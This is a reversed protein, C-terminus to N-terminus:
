AFPAAVEDDDPSEDGAASDGDRKGGSGDAHRPVPEDAPVHERRSEPRAVAAEEAVEAALGELLLGPLSEEESEHDREADGAQDFSNAPVPSATDDSLASRSSAARIPASSPPTLRKAHVGSSSWALRQSM